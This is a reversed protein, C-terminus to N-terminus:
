LQCAQESLRSIETWNKDAILQKNLMWSGGICAVNNLALYAKANSPNIGGTPCFTAQPLPGAISKLMKAGGSAEAPFFKMTDFGQDLLNMIESPTTAGPLLPIDSQSVATLLERTSGPSVMFDVGAGISLELTTPDIVTGSGVLVDPLAQKILKIADIAVETRLTVELVKLGGEVLATALPVADELQKIVVVPIVKSKKLIEKMKLSLSNAGIFKLPRM